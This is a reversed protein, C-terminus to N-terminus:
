HNAPAASKDAARVVAQAVARPVPDANNSATVALWAMGELVMVAVSLKLLVGAVLLSEHRVLHRLRIRQRPSLM